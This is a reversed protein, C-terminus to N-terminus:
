KWFSSSGREQDPKKKLKRRDQSIDNGTGLTSMSFKSKLIPPFEEQEEDRVRQRAEPTRRTRGTVQSYLSDTSITSSYSRRYYEEQGYYDDVEDNEHSRSSPSGLLHAGSANSHHRPNRLTSRSRSGHHLFNKKTAPPTKINRYQSILEIMDTDEGDEERHRHEHERQFQSRTNEGHLDNGEHSDRRSFDHELSSRSHRFPETPFSTRRRTPSAIREIDVDRDRYSIADSNSRYRPPPSHYLSRHKTDHFVQISKGNVTTEMEISSRSAYYGRTSKSHGFFKEGFRVLRHKWGSRRIAADHDFAPDYHVNIEQNKKRRGCSRWWPRKNSGAVNAFAYGQLRRRAEEKRKKRRRRCCCWIFALFIFACGLAMLLIQWWELKLKETRTTTTGPQEGLGPDDPEDPDVPKGPNSTDTAVVLEAFCVGLPNIVSTDNGLSSCANSSSVCSGSRLVRDNANSCSLCSSSGPGTCSGCSSDCAKCENANSDWYENKSCTSLCRGNVLVPRETPCATCKNFGSDSCESCDPHCSICSTTSDSAFTSKPCSDAAVCAGNFTLQTQSSCSLCFTSSGSCTSCSSDCKQCTVGDQASVFTGDPCSDVCKGDSLFSGPVCGTCQLQTVISAISFDPIKCSTCKAGCSDCAKKNNDAILSTGECVGDGNAKVCVGNLMYQGQVCETCDNSTGGSCTQCSAACPSCTDGNAFALQPCQTGTTTVQTSPICLARDNQNQTSGSQCSLCDGSGDACKTCGVQCAKCDGSSTLFFGDACKACQTGNDAKTFGTTCQCNGDDGCVGNVCNCDNGSRKKKLCRGTGSVGEDCKECDDEGCVRCDPGFRGSSCEECSSGTFGDRCVCQGQSNCIGGSSSCLPSCTTSQIDVLSLQANNFPPPLHGTDPISDWLVLRNSSSTTIAVVNSSLAVSEAVLPTSSSTNNNNTSDPLATFATQGSYLRSSFTAIGPQLFLELPLSNSLSSSANSFGASPSLTTTSSTLADRLLESNTTTTYEGPLLHIPISSASNSLKAGLTINSDGQLCRQPVCVLTSDSAANSFSVTALLSALFLM